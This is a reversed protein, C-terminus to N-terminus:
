ANELKRGLQKALGDQGLRRLDYGLGVIIRGL